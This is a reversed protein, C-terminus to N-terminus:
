PPRGSMHLASFSNLLSKTDSRNHWDDCCALQLALKDCHSLHLMTLMTTNLGGVGMPGAPVTLFGKAANGARFNAPRPVLNSPSSMKTSVTGLNQFYPQSFTRHPSFSWFFCVLCLFPFEMSHTQLCLLESTYSVPFQWRYCDLENLPEALGSRFTHVVKQRSGHPASVPIRKPISYPCVARPARSSLAVGEM